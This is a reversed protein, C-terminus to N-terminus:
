NQWAGYESDAATWGENQPMSGMSVVDDPVKQFGATANYRVAYGGQQPKNTTQEHVYNWIKVNQQKALASAAIHWRRLDNFRIGECALEWRRENQLANLSYSGIPDLGARERVKNIGDVTETLESHMLLADAFRILVLDHINNLQHNYANGSWGDTGYMLNEFCCAYGSEQTKDVASIPSWKKAYYETEQMYGGGGGLTHNPYDSWFAITAKLRVDKNDVDAAQWDDVLNPAVPGAGWGSGFPFNGGYDAEGGRVGMHLALGNAYGITTSWDALKNFKIAFMSEPNHGNNDEVWKLGKGQTYTYDNVTYSNTYAWLNRFDPVLSYGSNNVCDTIYEVVKAKTLTSGDPLAVSEMPQYNPSVLDAVKTGNCYFGTYFLWVRALMAEAGYKDIHGIRENINNQAPLKEVADRLDQLMQGYLESVEAPKDETREVTILPVNGYMSALDFHYYARLFLAEGLFQNKLEDSINAGPIASIVGNARSIGNYRQNYFDKTVSAGSNLFLDLSQMLKDNEGGGGLCDDSALQMMYLNTMQPNAMVANLNQYVAALLENGHQETKPFSSSSMEGYNEVNDIDCSSLALAVCSTGFLYKLLKM